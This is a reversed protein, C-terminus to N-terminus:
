IAGTSFSRFACLLLKITVTKCLVVGKYYYSCSQHIRLGNIPEHVRVDEVLEM